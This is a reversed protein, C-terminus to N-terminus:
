RNGRADINYTRERKARMAYPRLTDGLREYRGNLAKITANLESKERRFAPDNGAVNHLIEKVGRNQRLQLEIQRQLQSAQYKSYTKGEFEIKAHNDSYIKKLDEKTHGRESIGTYFPRISHRCNFQGIARHILHHTEGDSDVAPEHSQLKEWEPLSFIKGQVFEHDPAPNFEISVELSDAQIDEAIKLNIEQVVQSMEGSLANRVSSDLRRTYPNRGNDYDIFSIGSRGLETIAERMAQHYNIRDEDVYMKNVMKTIAAKYAENTTTSKAMIMYSDMVKVLLPSVAKKYAGIPKLKKGKKGGTEQGERYTEATIETFMKEIDQINEIHAKRLMTYLKRLDEAITERVEIMTNSIKEMRFFKKLTEGVRKFWALEVATLRAAIREAWGDIIEDLSSM